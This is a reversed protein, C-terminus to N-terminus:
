IPSAEDVGWRYPKKEHAIWGLFDDCESNECRAWGTADVAPYSHHSHPFSRMLATRGAIVLITNPERLDRPLGSVLASGGEKDYVMTMEGNITTLVRAPFAVTKGAHRFPTDLQALKLWLSVKHERNFEQWKRWSRERQHQLETAPEEARRHLAGPERLLAFDRLTDFASPDAASTEVSARALIGPTQAMFNEALATRRGSDVVALRLKVPAPCALRYPAITQLMMQRLLTEDITAVRPTIEIAIDARSEGCLPLPGDPQMRVVHWALFDNAKTPLEILAFREGLPEIRRVPQAQGVFFGNRFKGQWVKSPREGPKRAFTVFGSGEALGNGCPGSWQIHPYDQAMRPAVFVGCGREVDILPQLTKVEQATAAGTLMLGIYFAISRVAM